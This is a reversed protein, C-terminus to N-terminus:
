VLKEHRQGSVTGREHSSLTENEHSTFYLSQRRGDLSGIPPPKIIRRRGRAVAAHLPITIRDVAYRAQRTPM